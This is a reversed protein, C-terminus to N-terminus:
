AKDHSDYPHRGFKCEGTKNSKVLMLTDKM